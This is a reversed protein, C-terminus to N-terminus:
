GEGRKLTGAYALWGEKDGALLFPEALKLTGIANSYYTVGEGHSGWLNTLGFCEALAQVTAGHASKLVDAGNAFIWDMDSAQKREAEQEAEWEALKDLRGSEILTLQPEHYWSVHGKGKIHLSYSDHNNGGYQDAYSGLVIAECDATFQSMSPGLDKAVQVWDGKQFKQM